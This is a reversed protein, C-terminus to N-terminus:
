PVMLRYREPALEIEVPIVGGLEGDVQYPVEEASAIRVRRGRRVEVRSEVFRWLSGRVFSRALESLRGTPFLYVDLLGDDMRAARDFRLIAAYRPCNGVIVHGVERPLLAGDIEVALRPPKYGKLVRAAASLYAWKTIPGRRAREVERVTMADFGVGTMLFSLRGNVRAVDIELTRGGVLVDANRRVDKPIGLEVALVNATGRPLIGVPTTRDALGALVEHLTGDGGVAVVLDAAGAQGLLRAADGRACTELCEAIVGRRVLERALEGAAACARGRGSIPNAVLLVRRPPAQARSPASSGHALM